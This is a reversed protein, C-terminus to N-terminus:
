ARVEKCQMSPADIVYTKGDTASLRVSISRDRVDCTVSGIYYRDFCFRRKVGWGFYTVLPQGEYGSEFFRPAVEKKLFQINYWTLRGDAIRCEMETDFVPRGEQVALFRTRCELPEFGRIHSQAVCYLPEEVCRFPKFCYLETDTFSEGESGFAGRPALAAASLCGIFTRRNM